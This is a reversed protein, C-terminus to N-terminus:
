TPPRPACGGSAIPCKIKNLALIENLAFIENLALTKLSFKDSKRTYISILPRPPHLGMYPM